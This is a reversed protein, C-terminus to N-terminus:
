LLQTLISTASKATWTWELPCLCIRYTTTLLTSPPHTLSSYLPSGSGKADTGTTSVIARWGYSYLIITHTNTLLLKILIISISYIFCSSGAVFVLTHSTAPYPYSLLCPGHPRRVESGHREGGAAARPRRYATHSLPSLNDLPPSQRDREHRM